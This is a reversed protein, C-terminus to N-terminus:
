AVNATPATQSLFAKETFLDLLRAQEEESIAQLTKLAHLLAIAQKKWGAARGLLYMRDHANREDDIAIQFAMEVECKFGAYYTSLQFAIKLLQPKEDTKANM